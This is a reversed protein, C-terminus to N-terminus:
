VRTLFDTGTQYVDQSIKETKGNLNQEKFINWLIKLFREEKHLPNFPKNMCQETILTGTATKQKRSFSEFLKAPKGAKTLQKKVTKKVKQKERQCSQYFVM